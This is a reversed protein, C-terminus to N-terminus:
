VARAYTQYRTCLLRALYPLPRRDWPTFRPLQFPDAGTGAAGPATSVAAEYGCARVLEAHEARYDRGPKGNPYAFLRLREGLLEELVRKNHRIEQEATTRDLTALIPHAHTHGGLDMGTARLALVGSRDLMLREPLGAVAGSLEAVRAARQEFPLHKWATILAEYAAVRAGDGALPFVPLGWARGDLGRGPWRRVTEILQDNFMMGGDLWATTLFFTAPLGRARLIPAAVDLNDAYGDDFTIAAARRPLSGDRLRDVAEALPLVRYVSALWDLQRAFAQADPTGPRLPDPEPLVQHFILISLRPRLAAAARFLPALPLSM